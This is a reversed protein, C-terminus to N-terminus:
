GDHKGAKRRGEGHGRDDLGSAQLREVQDMRVTKRVQQRRRRRRIGGVLGEIADDEAVSDISKRVLVDVLDAPHCKRLKKTATSFCEQILFLATCHM